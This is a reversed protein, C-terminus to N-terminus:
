LYGRAVRFGVTDNRTGPRDKDRAASRVRSPPDRFSGGRLVRLDDDAIEDGDQSNARSTIADDQSYLGYRDQCWEAVNGHMDFLGWANPKKKGVPHTKKGANAAYWAHDGLAGADAGFAYEAGSGARCAYEWQAETPLRYGGAEFDCEATEENYCPEM